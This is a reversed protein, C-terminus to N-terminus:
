WHLGFGLHSRLALSATLRTTERSTEQLQFLYTEAAVDALLYFGAAIDMTLAGGISSRAAVTNRTPAIGSTSFTQRLLSAGVTLGVDLTVLPLDWAHALRLDGGYENANAHLSEQDFASSCADVRPTVSLSAFVFAYGAFAGNCIRAGNALPTRLTYGALPGNVAHLDSGGKRVLRAYAIRHLLADDVELTQGESLTVNGEVVHDAARGRVFYRGPRLRMRRATTPGTVEGVVAGSASERFILYDRGIPFVLTARGSAPQPATLVINGQGSLEFRYTPHQTGAWTRSTARLTAEYAYRYAEDLTVRDDTNSDAAGLLGSVFYHTFFSGRLEDSEQADESASSSTLFAVGQGELEEGVRLVFPPAPSGGKVRTLAGSRCADILMIRFQAASGRVLQELEKVDLRSSGLHLATGDAHGSYFVFLVAQVGPRSVSTRIRDNLSILARRATDADDDRLVVLNAPSFGGMDALVDRVKIADSGAYRLSADHADGHDNGLLLGFREVDARASKAILFLLSFVM